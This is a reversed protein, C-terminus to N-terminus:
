RQGGWRELDDFLEPDLLRAAARLGPVLDKDLAAEARAWLTRALARCHAYMKERADADVRQKDSERQSPLVLLGSHILEVIAKVFRSHDDMTAPLTRVVAVATDAARHIEDWASKSFYTTPVVTM